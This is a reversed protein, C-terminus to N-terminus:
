LVLTAELICLPAGARATPTPCTSSLVVYRQSMQVNHTSFGPKIMAITQAAACAWVAKSTSAGWSSCQPVQRQAQRQFCVHISCAPVSIPHTLLTGYQQQARANLNTKMYLKICTAEHFVCAKLQSVQKCSVRIPLSHRPLAPASNTLSTLQAAVNISSGRPFVASTTGSTTVISQLLPRPVTFYRCSLWASGPQM